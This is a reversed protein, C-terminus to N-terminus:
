LAIEHIKQAVLRCNEIDGIFGMNRTEIQFLHQALTERDAGSIKLDFIKPLYSYYEDRVEPIENVGIPDWENWIIEDILKYTAKQNDNMLDYHNNPEFYVMLM